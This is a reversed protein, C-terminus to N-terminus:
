TSIISGAQRALRAVRRRGGAGSAALSWIPLQRPPPGNSPPRLSLPHGAQPSAPTQTSSVIIVDGGPTGREGAQPPIKSMFHLPPRIPPHPLGPVRLPPRRLALGQRVLANAPNVESAVAAGRLIIRYVGGASQPAPGGVGLGGTCALNAGQRIIEPPRLFPSPSSAFFLKVYPDIKVHNLKSIAPVELSSSCLALPDCVLM